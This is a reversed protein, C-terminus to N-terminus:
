ELEDGLGADVLDAQGRDGPPGPHTGPLHHVVERAHLVDQQLRQGPALVLFGRVPPGNEGPDRAPPPLEFPENVQVQWGTGGVGGPDQPHLCPRPCRVVGPHANEQVLEHARPIVIEGLDHLAAHV